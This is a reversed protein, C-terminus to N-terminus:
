TKATYHQSGDNGGATADSDAAEGGEGPASAEIPLDPLVGRDKLLREVFEPPNPADYFPYAKLRYTAPNVPVETGIRPPPPVVADFPVAAAAVYLM